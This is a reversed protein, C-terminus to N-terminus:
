FFLLTKSNNQSDQSNQRKPSKSSMKCPTGDQLKVIKDDAQNGTTAAAAESDGFMKDTIISSVIFFFCSIKALSIREKDTVLSLNMGISLGLTCFLIVHVHIINICHIHKIKKHYKSISLCKKMKVTKGFM